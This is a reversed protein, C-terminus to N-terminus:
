NTGHWATTPKLIGVSGSFNILSRRTESGQSVKPLRCSRSFHPETNLAIMASLGLGGTWPLLFLWAEFTDELAMNGAYSGADRQKRTNTAM